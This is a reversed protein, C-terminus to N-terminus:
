SGEGKAVGLESQSLRAYWEATALAERTLWLYFPLDAQRVADCLDGGHGLSPDTRRLQAALHDLLTGLVSREGDKTRSKLFHLAQCLGASRILVPLKQAMSAYQKREESEKGYKGAIELVHAHAAAARQQELTM